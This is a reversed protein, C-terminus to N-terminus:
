NAKQKHLWRWWKKRKSSNQLQQIKRGIAIWRDSDIKIEEYTKGNTESRNIGLELKFLKAAKDLKQKSVNDDFLSECFLLLCDTHKELIIAAAGYMDEQDDSEMAIHILESYSPLPFRYFGNERGWGCDYLLYPVWKSGDAPNIVYDKGNSGLLGFDGPSEKNFRYSMKFYQGM